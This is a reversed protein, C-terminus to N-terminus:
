FTIARLFNKKKLAPLSAAAVSQGVRRSKESPLSLEISFDPYETKLVRKANELIINGGEGSVVRGLLLVVDMDYFKSYLKLTYGLWIGITEYIKEARPDKEAMLKQVVMLKEAPTINEPLPIGAAACLSIVGDQSFYKVGCGIDGSWEDAIANPALDVPAFALENLWGTINGSQDVYGGAESTGMAIGLVGNKQLSISGALATVDGDNAVVLPINEGIEKAANIFVNKITKQFDDPSVKLFLSAVKTQNNVYVGASSVGIADVRPMHAAAKRFSDLIGEYHYGPDSNIKPNWIVEESFVPNGDIVASVKRDSGGADFGIRYGKFNRGIAISHQKEEPRDDYDRYIVQFPHEYIKGMFDFDFSRTGSESYTQAIFEYIDRSGCIYLKYGGRSWLIFKVLREVYLQDAAKYMETGHIFTEFVQILGNDRELAIALPQEAGKLYSDIFSIFPIFDPDLEPLYNFEVPIGFIVKEM